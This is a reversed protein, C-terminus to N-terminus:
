WADERYTQSMAARATTTPTSAPTAHATSPNWVGVASPTAKATMLRMGPSPMTRAAVGMARYTATPETLLASTNTPSATTRWARSALWTWRRMSSADTCTPGVGVSTAANM